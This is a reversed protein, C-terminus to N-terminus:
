NCKNEDSRYVVDWGVWMTWRMLLAPLVPSPCVLRSPDYGSAVCFDPHLDPHKFRVGRLLPLEEVMTQVNDPERWGRQLSAVLSSRSLRERAFITIKLYCACRCDFPQSVLM